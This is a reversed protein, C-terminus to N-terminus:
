QVLWAATDGSREYVATYGALTTEEESLTFSVSCRKAAGAALTETACPPIGTDTPADPARVVDAGSPSLLAWGTALDDVSEPASPALSLDVVLVADTGDVQADAVTAVVEGVQSTQGMQLLPESTDDDGATAVLWVGGALLILLGCCLAAIILKRTAM